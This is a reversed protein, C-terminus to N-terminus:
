PRGSASRLLLAAAGLAVLVGFLQPGPVYMGKTHLTLSFDTAAGDETLVRYSITGSEHVFGNHFPSLVTLLVTASAGPGVRVPPPVSALLEAPNSVIEFRATTGQARSNHVNVPWTVPEQPKEWLEPQKVEVRLADSPKASVPLAVLALLVLTLLLRM